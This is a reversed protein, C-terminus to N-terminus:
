ALDRQRFSAFAAGVCGGVVVLLVILASLWTITYRGDCSGLGVCSASDWLDLKGSMWAAVYTSLMWQDPRFADVIEMVIRAGLEWVVAYGAVVGLAAATHRGLVALGFSLATVLAILTGGRVATLSLWRWFEGDLNGPFGGVESIVWFASLYVVASLVTVGLVGALLTGLKTGLVVMRKPRWLLLNTMGGSHLDAGIYSAGVLFGFLVLFTILFYTLPRIEREFVFVGYLYDTEHVEAPRDLNCKALFEPPYESNAAGSKAAQCDAYLRENARRQQEALEEAQALERATPQHTSVLTTAVTIGFAVILLVLMLRVFRRAYLRGFEARVLNM